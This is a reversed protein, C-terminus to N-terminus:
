SCHLWSFVIGPFSLISLCSSAVLVQRRWQAVRLIVDNVDYTVCKICSHVLVKETETETGAWKSVGVLSRTLEYLLVSFEQSTVLCLSSLTHTAGVYM